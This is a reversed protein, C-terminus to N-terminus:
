YRGGWADPWVIRICLYLKEQNTDEAKPQHSSKKSKGLACASCLHDKQFKLKPIGRALGDKALNGLEYDGYGMIKAAQDNGFRVTGLFKSVFNMLQSRNGTMYKSCGSDLYWLVIQVVQQINSSSTLPESFRVKKVKNMPTVAILKKSPKYVNPCADRVYVLLEKDQILRKLAANELSKSNLQAVLSDGHEKSLACTKKISDYQDKYIKKLHEIEKHLCENKSLLKAVSHKLEINITEIEDMEHKVKKEKDNERMSKIHEKHLEKPAEIKVPSSASQNTNSHSTQLGFAQEDSLEQQPVFHKGFDESLRNLKVYNIPTTNVKKEKSMPENQKALMKSRSVEELILTEEDDIMPSAAHQSSIVGGDYLTPKIRQAKKLYFINQYGLVQKHTDDYFIQPKTLMHVTYASQGVKYVINDLEKIKKELDIEKDMYKSEKEKSENKFVTFTQFLSEHNIMQESMQEIVSLIMSDQQAYLNTDQVAAHQTEQMTHVSQNDMDTHYPEHHPVESIADSGYNSLNAILFVLFALKDEDLIQGSEHAEALMAKEKFWAANRPRKPQTCQRAMHGEGQCNYCKVVREQGGANNGGSSTANGKYSSSAVATLFDKAKNLWAILDDGQNCMSVALFPMCMQHFVKFVINTAKLDCDAQLKEVISLEKYKKTRTTGDEEVVTPWVLPGNQLSNLIM